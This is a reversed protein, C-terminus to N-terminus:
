GLLGVVRHPEHDLNGRILPRQCRSLGCGSFVDRIREQPLDRLLQDTRTQKRARPANATPQRKRVRCPRDRQQINEAGNVLRSDTPAQGIRLDAIAPLAASDIRDPASDLALDLPCHLGHKQGLQRLAVSGKQALLGFPGRLVPRIAGLPSELLGMELCLFGVYM